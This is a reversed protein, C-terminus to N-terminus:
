PPPLGLSPIINPIVSDGQTYAFVFAFCLIAVLLVLPFAGMVTGAIAMRKGSLKEKKAERLGLIGLIVAIVALLYGIALVGLGVYVGSSHSSRSFYPPLLPNGWIFLLGVLSVVLSALSLNSRTPKASMM